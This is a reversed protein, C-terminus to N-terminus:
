CSFTSALAKCQQHQPCQILHDNVMGVAQMFAYVITKGVFNFGLKKLDKSLTDSLATFAPVAEANTFHNVIPKGEVYRWLFQNFAQGTSELELYARANGIISQVKLRNRVIGPNKMLRVVDEDGWGALVEPRFDQYAASYHEQKRLITLWSLGAQQGDLCLKEFLQQSDSVPRGWVRDHYDIYQPDSGCWGCRETKM